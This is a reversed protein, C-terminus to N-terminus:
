PTTSPARHLRAGTFRENEFTLRVGDLHGFPTGWSALDADPLCAVLAPEISGGHSVVLAGSGEPVSRVAETWIMRHAAAVAALAGGRAILEAYHVYPQPWAWQDHHDVEGPVYGSPMDLADDVAWGMAIATEIARPSASTVVCAFPGSEAGVARALAVGRASLHSGRGRAAGKKTPAHRRVELWRM